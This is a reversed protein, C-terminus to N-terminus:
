KFSYFARLYRWFVRNFLSSVLMLLKRIVKRLFHYCNETWFKPKTLFVYVGRKIIQKWKSDYLLSDLPLGMYPYWCRRYTKRIVKKNLVPQDDIFNDPAGIIDWSREFSKPKNKYKYIFEFDIFKLGLNKDIILNTPHADFLFYGKNYFFKLTFIIEKCIKLPLLHGRKLRLVNEYYPYIIYNDGQDILTPLFKNEKSFESMVLVERQMYKKRGERFTKKVVLKNDKEIVEIKSRRGNHTMTTIVNEKTEFRKELNEAKLFVDDKKQPVLIDIYELTEDVNDSSHIMNSYEIQPFSNNLIERIRHKVLIRKNGLGPFQRREVENPKIPNVDYAVIMLSPDGGSVPFPGKDWNGGRMHEKALKVQNKNLKQKLLVTFGEDFIMKEIEKELKLEIARERILFMCLGNLNLYNKDGKPLIYRIWKNRKSLRRLTDIPPKWNKKDLFYDLDELNINVSLGLEQKLNELFKQYDHEPNKEVLIDFKTNIGSKIGKHYLAHYALSLFYNEKNPVYYTNNWLIKEDLIIKAIMPQYYAIKSYDYGVRGSLSYVDMPVIGPEKNIIQEFKEISNDDILIDIDENFDVSPLNEFWRLVVYNIGREKLEYFFSKIGLVPPIYHRAIKKRPILNKLILYERNGKFTKLRLKGHLSFRELFLQKLSIILKAPNWFPKPILIYKVHRIRHFIWLNVVSSGSLVLVETSNKYSLSENDYPFFREHQIKKKTLGLYRPIKFKKSLFDLFLFDEAEVEIFRTNKDFIDEFEINRKPLLFNKLVSTFRNM